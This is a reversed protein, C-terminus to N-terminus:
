TREQRQKWQRDLDTETEIDKWTQRHRETEGNWAQKQRSAKGHRDIDRRIVTERDTETECDKWTERQRV